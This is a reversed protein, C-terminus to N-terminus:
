DLTVGINEVTFTAKLTIGDNTTKTSKQNTTKAQNSSDTQNTTDALTNTKTMNNSQEIDKSTTDINSTIAFNKPSFNLEEDDEIDYLFEIISSYSGVLTFQLDYVDEMQTTKLDLNLSQVSRYKRYNGLITWLYHIKYTKVEVAGISTLNTGDLNKSEYKQKAIKLNKIAEELSASETPYTQDVLANSKDVDQNLTDSALKIDKISEIKFNGISISKAIVIYTLIILLIILVGILIKKM